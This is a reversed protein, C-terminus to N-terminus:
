GVIVDEEPFHIKSNGRQENFKKQLAVTLGLPGIRGIFMCVIILFKGISSLYPTIGTTLGVTGLGSSVEFFIDISSFSANETFYILFTMLLSFMGFLVIISISRLIIKVPISRKFVTIEHHGQITRLVTCFVVAMTVTKIGGATGSPSGGILMWISSFLKSGTSLTGQPITYYGATRLTVSQFLSAMWKEGFSFDSLTTSCEAVFFYFTGFTILFLTSTLALKSHLSFIHFLKRKKEKLGTYLDFWVPFGIGGSFILFIVTFNLLPATAYAEFSNAGIVDFGANCFSSIAHFVGFYISKGWGINGNIKFFLTLLLAGMGEILLTTKISFLVFRVMGGTQSQNMSAQITQRNKLNIKKGIGVMLLTYVAIFSLGGVQILCILVIQGFLSWQESTIKTVLGTVCTASTSTFLADIYSVPEASATQSVPLYLLFSGILIVSLFSLIVLQVPKINRIRRKM